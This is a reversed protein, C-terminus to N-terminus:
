KSSLNELTMWLCLDVGDQNIKEQIICDLLSFYFPLFLDRMVPGTADPVSAFLINSITWISPPDQLGPKAECGRYQLFRKIV